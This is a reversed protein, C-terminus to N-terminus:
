VSFLNRELPFQKMIVLDIANKQVPSNEMKVLAMINFIHLPTEALALARPLLDDTSKMTM